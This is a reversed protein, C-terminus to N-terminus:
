LNFLHYEHDEAEPSDFWIHFTLFFIESCTQMVHMKCNLMSLQRVKKNREKQKQHDM